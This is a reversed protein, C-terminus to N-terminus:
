IIEKIKNEFIRFKEIAYFFILETLIYFYYLIIGATRSYKMSVYM